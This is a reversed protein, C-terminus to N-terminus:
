GDFSVSRAIGIVRYVIRGIVANDKLIIVRGTLLKLLYAIELILNVTMFCNKIRVIM